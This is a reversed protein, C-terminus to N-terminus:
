RQLRVPRDTYLRQHDESAEAMQRAAIAAPRRRRRHWPHRNRPRASHHDLPVADLGGDTFGFSVLTDAGRDLISTERVEVHM